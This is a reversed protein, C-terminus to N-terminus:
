RGAAFLSQQNLQKVTLRLRVRIVTFDGFGPLRYGESWCATDVARLDRGFCVGVFNYSFVRADVVWGSMKLLWSNLTFSSLKFERFLNFHRKTDLTKTCHHRRYTM